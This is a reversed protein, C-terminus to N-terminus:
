QPLERALALAEDIRRRAQDPYGLFRLSLGGFGHCGVGPDQTYLLALAHHKQPAYLAIGEQLHTHAPVFVGRYYLVSGLMVFSQLLLAPTKCGNLLPLVVNGWNRPLKCSQGCSM